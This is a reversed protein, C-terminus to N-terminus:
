LYSLPIYDSGQPIFFPPYLIGRRQAEASEEEVTSAAYRPNQASRFEIATIAALFKKGEQEIDGLTEYRVNHQETGFESTLPNAM